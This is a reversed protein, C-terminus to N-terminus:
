EKVMRYHTSHGVEDALTIVYIGSPLGSVDLSVQEQGAQIRYIKELRGSLTYLSAKGGEPLHVHLYRKVPNPYLVVGSDESLGVPMGKDDNDSVAVTATSPEGVEYDEGSIVMATISGNSEATNDDDTAVTLTTTIAGDAFNLMTPATGRIYDGQQTVSVNVSLDGLSNVRTLTFLADMGEDVSTGAVITVNQFQGGVNRLLPFHVGDLPPIWINSFDWGSFSAQQYMETTTLGTGGESNTQMSTETNWYSNTILGEQNEDKGVLGRGSSRPIEGTAYSNTITSVGSTQHKLKGVLGASPRKGTVKGTAYSNQITGYFLEGVLGGVREDGEVEGSAYSKSIVTFNTSSGILGGVNDSLTATVKGTAYSNEIFGGVINSGSLGIRNVGIMGGVMFGVSGVTVPGAAHSDRITDGTHVGTLGGIGNISAHRGIGSVEAAAYSDEIASINYGILGGVYADGAVKGTVYCKRVPCLLNYGILGGVYEKGKIDVAEMGLSDIRSNEVYGFLGVYERGVGGENLRNIRLNRIVHGKGNFTGTFKEGQLRDNDIDRDHGIPLWGLNDDSYAYDSFDLDATLVYHDDLYNEGNSDSNDRIADLQAPTAIQFPNSKTGAGGAFPNQAKVQWVGILLLTGLSFVRWLSTTKTIIKQKM